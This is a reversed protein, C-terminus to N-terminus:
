KSPTTTQANSRIAVLTLISHLRFVPFVSMPPFYIATPALLPINIYSRYKKEQYQFPHM